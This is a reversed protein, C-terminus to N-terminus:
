PSGENQALLGRVNVDIQIEQPVRRGRGHISLIMDPDRDVRLAIRSYAFDALAAGIRAHVAFPKDLDTALKAADTVRLTGSATTALEGGRVRIGQATASLVITGDVSGTARVRKQTAAGAIADLSVGHVAATIELPEERPGLHLELPGLTVIGTAAIMPREVPITASGLTVTGSRSSLVLAHETDLRVSDGISGRVSFPLEVERLAVRDLHVSEATATGNTLSFARTALDVDVDAHVKAGQLLLGAISSPLAVHVVGRARDKDVTACADIVLEDISGTGCIRLDGASGRITAAVQTAVWSGVHVRPAELALDVHPRKDRLDITGRIAVRDTGRVLEGDVIKV